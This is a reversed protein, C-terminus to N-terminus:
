IVGAIGILIGLWGAVYALVRSTRGAPNRIRGALAMATMLFILPSAWVPIYEGPHRFQNESHAILIDGTLCLFNFAVFADLWLHEAGRWRVRVMASLESAM